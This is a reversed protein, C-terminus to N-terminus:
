VWVGRVGLPAPLMESAHVGGRSCAARRQFVRSPNVRSRLGRLVSGGRSRGGVAVQRLAGVGGCISRLWLVVRKEVCEPLARHVCASVVIFYSCVRASEGSPVGWGPNGAQM